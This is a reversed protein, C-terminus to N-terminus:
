AGEETKDAPPQEDLRFLREVAFVYPASPADVGDSQRLAQVPDNLVKNVIRRALEDLHEREAPSVQLKNAARAAEEQAIQHYRQYLRDILPGIQRARHWQVFETVQREVIARAASVADARQQQTASVVQQLDDLNYLYVNNLSGVAAEIDRPLAIDILFVPRYRRRRLTPEFVARTIIPHTAGTSSLVIDAAALHDPLQDFAVAEGGFEQALRQAKTIDRNCVMLRRPKLSSFSQLVLTAMEGAGISLVVKDDFRDFIRRAYDVAISAVSLRGEALTTENMVQKGVALARQFLPNLLAAALQKQGALDYAGRVQGLIQTEGLVMSDLSSAVSFLHRVVEVNAKEYLHSSFEAPAVDRIAGLFEALESARPHGHVPRATYLETRNCTSLLVFEAEPFRSRFEALAREQEAPSFALRERVALPATTHNLGLLLLRQM